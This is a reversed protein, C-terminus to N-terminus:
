HLLICIQEYNMNAIEHVVDMTTSTHKQQIRM